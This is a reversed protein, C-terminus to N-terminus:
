GENGKGKTPEENVTVEIKPKAEKSDVPALELQAETPPEQRAKKKPNKPNKRKQAEQKARTGVSEAKDQLDSILFKINGSPLWLAIETQQRGGVTGLVKRGGCLRKVDGVAILSANDVGGV